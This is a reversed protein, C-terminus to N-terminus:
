DPSQKREKASPKYNCATGNTLVEEYNGSSNSGNLFDNGIGIHELTNGEREQLLKLTEPRINLDKVWKKHLTVSM